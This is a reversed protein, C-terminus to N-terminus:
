QSFSSLTHYILYIYIFLLNPTRKRLHEVSVWWPGQNNHCADAMQVEETAAVALFSSINIADACLGAPQPRGQPIDVQKSIDWESHNADLKV